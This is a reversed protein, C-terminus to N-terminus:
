FAEVIEMGANQIVTALMTLQFDDDNAIVVKLQDRNPTHQPIQDNEESKQMPSCENEEEQISHLSKKDSELEQDLKLNLNESNVENSVKASHNAQTTLECSFVTGEGIISDVSVKGGMQEIMRKCISLGLGTGTPNMESHEKLKSFDM